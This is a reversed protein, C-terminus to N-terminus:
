QADAGRGLIRELVDLEENTLKSLDPRVRIPGGGEGTHQLKDGYRKPLLKSAIWKRADVRLRSRQVNQHDLVVKGKEDTFFDSSEDDAIAVIEDAWVEAQVERASAYQQSFEEHEGDFLWGMVTRLGPMANDRCISRLSEGEALRTCIDAAVEPTYRTPRGRGRRPKPKPRAKWKDTRTTSSTATMAPPPYWMDDVRAM